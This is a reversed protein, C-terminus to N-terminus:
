KNNLVSKLAEFRAMKEDKKSNSFSEPKTPTETPVLSIKELMSSMKENIKSMGGIQSMLDAIMTELKTIREAMSEMEKAHDIIPEAPENALEGSSEDAMEETKGSEIEIEVSPEDEIPMIESIVGDTVVIKAVGVLEHEGSPAPSETENEGIVFVKAGVVIEGDIKVDTGSATTYMAFSETKNMKLINRIGVLLHNTANM